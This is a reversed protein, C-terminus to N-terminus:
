FGPSLLSVWLFGIELKRVGCQFEKALNRKRGGCDRPSQGCWPLSVYVSLENRGVILMKSCRDAEGVGVRVGWM